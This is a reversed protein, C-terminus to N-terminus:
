KQRKQLDEVGSFRWFSPWRSGGDPYKRLFRIRARQVKTEPVAGLTVNWDQYMENWSREVVETVGGPSWIWDGVKKDGGGEIITRKGGYPGFGSELSNSVFVHSRAMKKRKRKGEPKQQKCRLTIM